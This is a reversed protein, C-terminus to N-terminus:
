PTIREPDRPFMAGMKVSPLGLYGCLLRELGFGCGGHPYTGHRFSELYAGLSEPSIGAKTVSELLQQYDHIRQAGSCIEQGRFIVDFSRSYGEMKAPCTYFPRTQSPYNYLIFVDIGHKEKVLAGLQRENETSLDEMDAQEFGAARLMKVGENFRIMLIDECWRPIDTPYKERIVALEEACAEINKFLYVLMGWAAEMISVFTMGATPEIRMEMDIGTFECLHRPTMSREARFISGIEFVREFDANIAMQKYLQPSQALYGPQGFYDLKFVSAGSESATGIIKPTQLEIFGNAYFYERLWFCMKSKLRFIAQNVPTRLDLWRADLRKHVDVQDLAADKILFPMEGPESLVHISEAQIEVTKVTTSQIPKPAQVVRGVVQIITEPRLDDTRKKERLKEPIIVQLTRGNDRIIMITHHPFRRQTHVRGQIIADTGVQDVLHTYNYGKEEESM